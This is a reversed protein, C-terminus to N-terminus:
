LLRCGMAAQGRHPANQNSITGPLAAAAAKLAPLEQVLQMCRIQHDSDALTDGAVFLSPLAACPL